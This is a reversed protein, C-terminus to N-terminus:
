YYCQIQPMLAKQYVALKTVCFKVKYYLLGIPRDTQGDVLHCTHTPSGPNALKGMSGREMCGRIRKLVM